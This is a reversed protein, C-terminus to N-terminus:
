LAFCTDHCHGEGVKRAKLTTDHRMITGEIKRMTEVTSFCCVVIHVVCQIVSLRLNNFIFEQGNKIWEIATSHLTDSKRGRIIAIEKVYPIMRVEPVHTGNKVLRPAFLLVRGGSSWM